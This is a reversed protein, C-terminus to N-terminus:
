GDLGGAAPSAAAPCTAFQCAIGATGRKVRSGAMSPLWSLRTRIMELRRGSTFYGRLSTLPVEEGRLGAGCGIIIYSMLEELRERYSEDATVEWAEETLAYLGVVMASTLAKNQFKVVGM